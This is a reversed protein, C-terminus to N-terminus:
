TMNKITKVTVAYWPVGFLDHNSNQISLVEASQWGLMHHTYSHTLLLMEAPNSRSDMEM